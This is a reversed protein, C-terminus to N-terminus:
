LSEHVVKADEIIELKEIHNLETVPKELTEILKKITDKAIKLKSDSM